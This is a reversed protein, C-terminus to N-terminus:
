RTRARQMSSGRTKSNERTLCHNGLWAGVTRPLCRALAYTSAGCLCPPTAGREKQKRERPSRAQAKQMSSVSTKSNKRTLCHDGLWADVELYAGLWHVPPEEVFAPHPPM